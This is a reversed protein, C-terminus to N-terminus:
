QLKGLLFLSIDERKSRDRIAQSKKKKERERTECLM